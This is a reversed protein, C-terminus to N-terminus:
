KTAGRTPFDSTTMVIPAFKGNGLYTAGTVTFGILERAINGDLLHHEKVTVSQLKAGAIRLSDADKM